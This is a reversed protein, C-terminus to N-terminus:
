VSYSSSSDAAVDDRQLLMKVISEHGNKAVFSLPTPGWSSNSDAAVDDRQLLMKVISEHGNEAAFSLPTQGKSSSSDTTNTDAEAGSKLLHEILHPLGFIACIHVGTGYGEEFLWRNNPWSKNMLMQSACTAKDRKDLFLLADKLIEHEWKQGHYGWNSSAYNFFPHTKLLIKMEQETGRPGIAFADYSLYRM